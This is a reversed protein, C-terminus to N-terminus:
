NDDCNVKPVVGDRQQRSMTKVVNGIHQGIDPFVASESSGKPM